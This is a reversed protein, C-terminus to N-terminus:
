PVLRRTAEICMSELSAIFCDPVVGLDEVPAHKSDWDGERRVAGVFM